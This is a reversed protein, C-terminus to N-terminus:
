LGISDDEQLMSMFREARKPELEYIDDMFYIRKIMNAYKTDFRGTNFNRLDFVEDEMM